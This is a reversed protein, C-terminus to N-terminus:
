FFFGVGFIGGFTLGQLLIIKAPQFILGAVIFKVGQMGLASAPHDHWFNIPFLAVQRTYEIWYLAYCILTTHM